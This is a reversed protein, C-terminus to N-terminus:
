TNKTQEVNNIIYFKKFEISILIISWELKDFAKSSEKDLDFYWTTFKDKHTTEVQCKARALLNQWFDYFLFFSMSNILIM